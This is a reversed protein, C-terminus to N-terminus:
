ELECFNEFLTTVREEDIVGCDKLMTINEVSEILQQADYVASRATEKTCHSANLTELIEVVLRKTDTDAAEQMMKLIDEFFIRSM